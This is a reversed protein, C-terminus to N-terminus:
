DRVFVRVAIPRRARAEIERTIERTGGELWAVTASDPWGGYATRAPDIIFARLATDRVMAERRQRTWPERPTAWYLGARFLHYAFAPAEPAVFAPRSPPAAALRPALM